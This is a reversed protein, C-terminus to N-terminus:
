YSLWGQFYPKTKWLWSLIIDSIFASKRPVTALRDISSSKVCIEGNGHFKVFTTSLM